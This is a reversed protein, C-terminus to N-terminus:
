EIRMVIQSLYDADDEPLLIEGHAEQTYKGPIAIKETAGRLFWEYEIDVHGVDLAQYASLALDYALVTATPGLALLLLRKKGYAKAAELIEPYRSFANVSPCLIRQISQVESFLDNGVGLRTKEGEVILVDRGRWLSRLDRFWPGAVSKDKWDMYPRTIQADGFRRTSWPNLELCEAAKKLNDNDWIWWDWFRRAFENCDGTSKFNHPVCVLLRPDRCACVEKLRGALDRDEEQFSPKRAGTILGFEGDGFRAISCGNEKIYRITEEPSMVSFRYHLDFIKRRQLEYFSEYIEVLRKKM